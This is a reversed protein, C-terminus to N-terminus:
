FKQQFNVLTYLYVPVSGLIQWFHFMKQWTCLYLPVCSLIQWDIEIQALYLPVSTCLYVAQIKKSNWQHVLIKASFQGLYLPVCTCLGFDALSSFKKALYLPVSTCLEFNTLWIWNPGPVSTCLYVARIKKSNWQHLLIKALFKGLYLPLCTCFRFDVLCSVKKALYLPVSTCLEFDTFSFMLNPWTCLCM